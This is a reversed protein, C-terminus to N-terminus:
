DAARRRRPKRPPRGDNDKENSRPERPPRPDDIEEGTEQDVVRMSLKVKGRDDLGIVKVKVEDGENVVDTVQGVRENLLESIHVLGDRPGLFNVFAGFDMVKVVTGEYIQGVEPEVVIIKIEDLAKEISKKGKAYITILGKDDIDIKADSLECIEKIVKGGAGIVERIKDTPIQMKEIRPAYENVEKRHSKIEKAMESLIHIRGELAQELAVKMIDRTISTIKIDMQLSTIGSDTGAVKFDMDGLHDEDGLIDSLVAYEKDEKILGMAIGAVSDKM